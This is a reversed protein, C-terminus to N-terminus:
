PPPPGTARTGANCHRPSRILCGLVLGQQAHRRLLLQHTVRPAQGRATLSRQHAPYSSAPKRTPPQARSPLALFSTKNKDDRSPAALAAPTDLLTALAESSTVFCPHHLTVQTYPSNVVSFFSFPHRRAAQNHSPCVSFASARIYHHQSTLELFTTYVDLM